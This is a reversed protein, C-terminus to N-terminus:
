LPWSQHLWTFSSIRRIWVCHWYIELHHSSGPRWDALGDYDLCSTQITSHESHESHETHQTYVMYHYHLGRYECTRLYWLYEIYYYYYLHLKWFTSEFSRLINTSTPPWSSYYALLDGRLRECQNHWMDWRLQWLTVLSPIIVLIPGTM